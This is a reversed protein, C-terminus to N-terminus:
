EGRKKFIVNGSCDIDGRVTGNCIVNGTTDIDECNGNVVVNGTTEIDGCNGHIEVNSSHLDTVALLNGDVIVKGNVISVNKGNTEITQGNVVIKNM